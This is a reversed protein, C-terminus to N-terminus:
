CSKLNKWADILQQKVFKAGQKLDLRQCDRPHLICTQIRLDPLIRLESYRRCAEIDQTFCPSDIYLVTTRKGSQELQWRIAGTGKNEYVVAYERLIPFVFEKFHQSGSLGIQPLLKLPLEETIAFEILERVHQASASQIVSNLGVSLGANRAMQINAKINEINGSGTSQRFLFPDYYPFQINFKLSTGRLRELHKPTILSLNSACSIEWDTQEAAYLIMDILQKNLFPEGGSFTIESIQEDKLYDILTRFQALGM